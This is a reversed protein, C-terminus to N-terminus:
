FADEPTGPNRQLIYRLDRLSHYNNIEDLEGLEQKEKSVAHPKKPILNPANKNLGDLIDLTLGKLM